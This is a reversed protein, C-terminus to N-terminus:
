SGVILRISQIIASLSSILNLIAAPQAEHGAVQKEEQTHMLLKIPEFM